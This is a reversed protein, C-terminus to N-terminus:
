VKDWIEHFYNKYIESIQKSKILYGVPKEEWSFFAIKDNCISTNSPIPFNPYKMKLLKRKIFLNKIEKTALGKIILGKSKRKIDYMSFFEQIEKNEQNVNVAFFLYEDEKKTDEILLNLMAIIGKIGEFIEAEQKEKVKKQKSELEPLIELVRKKKEEIFNILQKPPVAQYFKIKGKKIYSILGKEILSNISNHVASSVMGSKEIINGVKTEGLELLTLYTKIEGKSLGLEELALIEM